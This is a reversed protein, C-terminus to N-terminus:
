PTKFLLDELAKKRMQWLEYEQGDIKVRCEGQDSLTLAAELIKKGGKDSVQITKEHRRFEVREIARSGGFATPPPESLVTFADEHTVVSIKRVNGTPHLKTWKGVDDQVQLRLAEFVNALSCSFRENVWDIEPM